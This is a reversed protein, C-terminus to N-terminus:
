AHNHFISGHLTCWAGASQLVEEPSVSINLGFNLAMAQTQLNLM